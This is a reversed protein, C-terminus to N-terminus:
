NQLLYRFSPFIGKSFEKNEVIGLEEEEKDEMIIPKVSEPQVHASLKRKPVPKQPQALLAQKESDNYGSDLRADEDLVSTRRIFDDENLSSKRRHGLSESRPKQTMSLMETLESESHYKQRRIPPYPRLETGSDNETKNEYTDTYTVKEDDKSYSISYRKQMSTLSM